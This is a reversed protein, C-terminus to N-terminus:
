KHNRMGSVRFSESLTRYYGIQMYGQMIKTADEFSYADDDACQLFAEIIVSATLNVLKQAFENHESPSERAIDVMLRTMEQRYRVSFNYDRQEKVLLRLYTRNKRYEDFLLKGASQLGVQTNTSAIDISQIKELLMNEISELIQYIDKFHFYVTSRHVGSADAVQQVTIRSLPKVKYLEWFERIIRDKTEKRAREYVGMEIGESFGVIHTINYISYLM